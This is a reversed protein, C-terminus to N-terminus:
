GDRVYGEVQNKIKKTEDEVTVIVNILGLKEENVVYSDKSQSATIEVLYRKNNITPQYRQECQALHQQKCTEYTYTMPENFQESKKIYAFPEMKMREMTAKSLNMVLLKENNTVATKNTFIFLNSVGILVISLIVLSALVEVLTFGRQQFM